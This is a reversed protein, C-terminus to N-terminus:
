NGLEEGDLTFFRGPDADYDPHCFAKRLFAAIVEHGINKTTTPPKAAEEAHRQEVEEIFRMIIRNKTLGDLILLDNKMATDSM